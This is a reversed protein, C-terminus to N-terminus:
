SSARPSCLQPQSSSEIAVTRREVFYGYWAKRNADKLIENADNEDLKTVIARMRPYLHPACSATIYLLNKGKDNKAKFIAAQISPKLNELVQLWHESHASYQRVLKMFLHEETNTDSETFINQVEDPQDKTALYDLLKQIINPYDTARDVLLTLLNLKDPNTALFLQTCDLSEDKLLRFVWEITQNYQTNLAYFLVLNYNNYGDEKLLMRLLLENSQADILAIIRTMLAPDRINQLAVLLTSRALKISGPHANEIEDRLSLLTPIRDHVQKNRMAVYLPNFHKANLAATQKEVPLNKFLKLAWAFDEENFFLSGNFFSSVFEDVLMFQSWVEDGILPTLRKLRASVGANYEPVHPSYYRHGGHQSSDYVLVTQTLAHFVMMAQDHMPMSKIYALLLPLVREDYSVMARSLPYRDFSQFGSKFICKKQEPSFASIAELLDPIMQPNTVIAASLPNDSSPKPTLFELMLPIPANDSFQPNSSSQPINSSAAVTARRADFQRLTAIVLRIKEDRQDTTYNCSTAFSLLDMIGDLRQRLITEQEELNFTSLADVLLTLAHLTDGGYKYFNDAIEDPFSNVIAKQNEDSRWHPGDWLDSWTYQDFLWEKRSLIAEHCMRKVPEVYQHIVDNPDSKSLDLADLHAYLQSLRDIEGSRIKTVITEVAFYQPNQLNFSLFSDLYGELCSASKLLLQTIFIPAYTM